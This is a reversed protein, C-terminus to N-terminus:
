AVRAARVHRFGHRTDESKGELQLDVSVEGFLQSMGAWPKILNIATSM